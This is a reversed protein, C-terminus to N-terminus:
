PKRDGLCCTSTYCLTLLCCSLNINGNWDKRDKVSVKQKRTDGKCHVWTVTSYGKQSSLYFQESISLCGFTSPVIKPQHNWSCYKSFYNAYHQPQYGGENMHCNCIIYSNLLYHSSVERNMFILKDPFSVTTLDLIQCAQRSGTQFSCDHLTGGELGHGVSVWVSLEIARDRVRSGQGMVGHGGLWVICEDGSGQDRVEVGMVWRRVGDQGKVGSRIVWLGM